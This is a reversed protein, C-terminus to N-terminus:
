PFRALWYGFYVAALGVFVHASIHILALAFAAADHQRIIYFTDLSFTSFTTFGGLVGTFLFLRTQASFIAREAAISSLFGILFCGLINATLTGYPFSTTRLLSHVGLGILYRFISGVFGGSGVLLLNLM